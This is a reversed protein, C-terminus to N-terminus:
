GGVTIAGQYRVPGTPQGTPSGGAPEDSLLLQTGASAPARLQARGDPPLVGLSIPVTGGAPLAWLQLARGPAQDPAATAVIAASGDPGIRVLFTAGPAGAPSLAALFDPQAPLPPRLLLVAMAAAAATAGVTGLRWFGLNGWLGRVPGRRTRRRAQADEIGTALALRRWLEPPPRRPVALAALPALRIQWDEIQAAVAPDSLALAEMARVQAAPLTGLVYEAAALDPDDGSDGPGGAAAEDSM